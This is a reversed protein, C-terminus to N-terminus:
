GARREVPQRPCADVINALGDQDFDDGELFGVPGAAGASLMGECADLGVVDHWDDMRTQLNM